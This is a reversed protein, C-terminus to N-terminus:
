KCYPRPYGYSSFLQKMRQQNEELAEPISLNENLVQRLVNCLIKEIKNLPIILTNQKYPENRKKTYKFSKETMALWPYLRLLDLNHYPAVVPSQGGLITMYFSIDRRCIWRFFEYISEHKATFPNVGLNWGISVSRKGPLIECGVRGIIQNQLSKSIQAAYESYTILMATKGSSFDEVTQTISTKFPSRSTYKITDLVSSFARANAATNLCPRNYADWLVGGYAWLRVLLEPALEEDTIGAMSTGFETPSDPNFTRTFFESTGNFQTWTKPPSLPMKYKNNFSKIIGLNEFLDKRYFMLQSGGLLPLGYYKNDYICNGINEQFIHDMQFSDSTIFESVDAVFSNQVLYSLWPIDYMFIDYLNQPHGLTDAIKDLIKNQPLFDFEIEIGTQQSFSESLLQVSHATNLDVMLARIKKTTLVGPTKTPVRKTISSINLPHRVIEDEQILVQPEFLASSQINKLLLKSALSGLDFPTRSSQLVGSIKSSKTWSEESFTILQIDEPVNINKLSLAELAGYAMNKSTTIIAELSDLPLSHLVSKFSDEKSMDTCCIHNEKATLSHDFFADKYGRICENESSFHEPGCVLAINEYGKELLSSAIYHTTEYNHYGVFNVFLNAPNREIFVNPIDYNLIRNQFFNRNQPQCTIIILGAVNQSIFEEIKQCEIDASNNSFAVSVTYGEQQLYTSIGKFIETHYLNDIDTLIVGILKSSFLKLNRAAINPIYKLKEISDLIRLKTEPKVSKKGSLCCSVTAVSVGADRAVEKLTVM